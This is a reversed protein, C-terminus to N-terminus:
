PRPTRSITSLTPTPNVLSYVTLKYLRFLPYVVIYWRAPGWGFAVDHFPLDMYAAMSVSAIVIAVRSKCSERLTLACYIQTAM